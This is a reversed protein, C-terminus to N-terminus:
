PALPAVQSSFWGGTWGDIGAALEDARLRLCLAGPGDPGELAALDALM